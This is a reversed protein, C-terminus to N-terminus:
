DWFPDSIGTIASLLREVGMAIGSSAPLGQNMVDLFKSPTPLSYGYLEKKLEAQKLIRDKQEIPDTLENFCNCLELSNWYIEFRECVRPDEKKITSYASLHHPFEYLLWPSDGSLKPEIENLFLLFYLDDWELESKPLPVDAFKDKILARLKKAELFDLIDLDLFEKFINQITYKKIKIAKATSIGKKDLYDACFNFLKQCDDMIQLYNANKRYWELMMFQPRHIPSNPEDRFVYSLTFINELGLSLLEKMCFEPSTHLYLNDLKNERTKWLAFPHIHAEMGPNQVAPPTLVDLFNRKKFFERIAELLYIRALHKEKM